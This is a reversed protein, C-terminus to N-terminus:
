PWHSDNTYDAPIGDPFDGAADKMDWSVQMIDEMWAIGKSTLEAMQPGTLHRNVDNGDRLVLTTTTDGAAILQLAATIRAQYVIQDKLRGTLKISHGYGTVTFSKGAEIRREREANVDASTPSSPDGPLKTRGITRPM